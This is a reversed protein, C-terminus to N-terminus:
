LRYWAGREHCPVLRIRTRRSMCAVIYRHTLGPTLSPNNADPTAQGNSQRSM